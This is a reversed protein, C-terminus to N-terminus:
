KRVTQTVVYPRRPPRKPMRAEIEAASLTPEIKRPAAVTGASNKGCGSCPM